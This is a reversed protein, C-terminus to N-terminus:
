GRTPRPKWNLTGISVALATRAASCVRGAPCSMTSRPWSLPRRGPQVLDTIDYKYTGCYNDVWAVPTRNVWFWGQSRVGGVKLWIRQGRWAAPISVTKRYWADGKYVWRLPKACHDWKCDWSDGVGPTGVGQAEWCAPVQISRAEPWPKGYFANWAPHRLPATERTVFEWEGRLRLVSQLPSTVVPNVLAPLAPRGGWTEVGRLWATKEEASVATKQLATALLLVMLATRCFGRSASSASMISRRKPCTRGGPAPDNHNVTASM